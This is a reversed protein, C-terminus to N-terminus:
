APFTENSLFLQFVLAGDLVLAELKVNGSVVLSSRDSIKVGKGVRAKVDAQTLAFSPHLVVKAGANVKIGLHEASPGKVDVDAGAYRM